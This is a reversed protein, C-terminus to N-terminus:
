CKPWHIKRFNLIYVRCDRYGLALARDKIASCYPKCYEPPLWLAKVGELAVWDQALSVQPCSEDPIQQRSSEFPFFEFRDSNNNLYLGDTSFRISSVATKAYLIKQLAGTKANWLQITHNFSGSALIQGDPSFTVSQVWYSHGELTHLHHGSKVDWLRITYDDSGSALIQGDPSFTVSQVWYSGSELTHLQTGWSKRTIPLTAMMRLPKDRFNRRIISEGAAFAIGSYYLQLPASCVMSRRIFRQADNLFESLKLDSMPENSQELHYAWHRCSYQLDKPLCQNIVQDKIDKCETALSLLDCINEKLSNNMVRLCQTAIKRHMEYKKARLTTTTNLLSNKFHSDLFQILPDPDKPMNLGLISALVVIDAPAQLITIAGVVNQFDQVHVKLEPGVKELLLGLAAEHTNEAAWSIPTRGYQSDKIEGNAGKNLLAKVVATHGNGSAWSLLTRGHEKDKFEVDVGQELLMSVVPEHGAKVASLLLKKQIDGRSQMQTGQKALHKLLEHHGNSIAYYLPTGGIDDALDIDAGARLLARATEEYGNLMVWSLPTRNHKDVSDVFARKQLFKKWSRETLLKVITTHGNGAAWSLASRGYVNDKANLGIRANKLWYKVVPTLGFYTTVM